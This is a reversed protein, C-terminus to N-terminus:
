TKTVLDELKSRFKWRLRIGEDKVTHRIIWEIILLFLFGCM